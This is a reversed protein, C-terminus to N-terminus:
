RRPSKCNACYWQLDDEYHFWSKSGCVCAGDAQVRNNPLDDVWEIVRRGAECNECDEFYGGCCDCAVANMKVVADSLYKEAVNPPITEESIKLVLGGNCNKCKM